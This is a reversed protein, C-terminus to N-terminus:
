HRLQAAVVEETTITPRGILDRLDTSDTQQDGRKKVIDSSALRNSYVAPIGIGELAKAYEAEPLNQYFVPRRRQRGTEAALEALTFAHAGGLEYVRNEHGEGSWVVAAADALDTHTAANVFDRDESKPPCTDESCPLPPESVKKARSHGSCPM